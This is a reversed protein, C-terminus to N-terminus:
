KKHSSRVSKKGWTPPWQQQRLMMRSIMADRSMNKRHRMRALAVANLVVRRPLGIEKSTLRKLMKKDVEGKPHIVASLVVERLIM